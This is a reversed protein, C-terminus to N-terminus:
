SLRALAALAERVKEISGVQEVLKKAAVLDNINLGASNAAVAPAAGGAAAKRGRKRKMGMKALVQSVQTHLVEVGRAKLAAVVDRPRVPKEMGGAVERIQDAKTGTSGNTSAAPKAMRASKKAAKAAAIAKEKRNAERKKMMNFKITSVMSPSVDVGQEKLAASVEKPMSKRNAKLYKRVAASKNVKETETPM